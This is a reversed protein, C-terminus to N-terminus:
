YNSIKWSEIDKGRYPELDKLLNEPMNKYSIRGKSTIKKIMLGNGKVNRGKAMEILQNRLLEREDELLAITELLEKYNESLDYFEEGAITDYDRESLEPRTDSVLCDYFEKEKKIMKKIYEEDRLVEVTESTDNFFSLFIIKELNWVAMHHQCQIWYHPQIDGSAAILHSSISVPCKLEVAIQDNDSIGDISSIMWDYKDHQAVAPFVSVGFISEFDARAFEENTIGHTMAPTFKRERLGKKEEWLEVSTMWPSEGMIIAADSSGIKMKRFEEWEPTRQELNIRM